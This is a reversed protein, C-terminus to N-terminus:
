SEGHRMVMKLIDSGFREIKSPGIGPIEQLAWLNDPRLSDISLIVRRHFVMYPKWNLARAQRRRYNELDRMLGPREAKRVGRTNSKAKRLPRGALWITPYKQGRHELRGEDLLSQMAAVLSSESVQKLQGHQALLHLRKKRVAQALSGRLAKALLVKGVPRPLEKVAEVIKDKQESSLTTPTARSSSRPRNIEFTHWAQKLAEPDQCFDCVGCAENSSEELFYRAFYDQRCAQARAYTEISDLLAVKPKKRSSKAILRNQTILDQIGFYLHCQAKNGDRGARGSEQYYAEPSAPIQYHVILRVDPHDIGMGFAHTAVLVTSTGDDYAKHATHRAKESMGAHYHSVKFRQEKLFAAVKEVQKRTACYVICRPSSSKGLGQDAITKKLQQNRTAEKGLPFVSYHLNPRIVDGMISVPERLSLYRVIEKRVRSTATATVAITPVDLLYKLEGLKLYEPRFDHGWQSICHAEDVALLSIKAQQVKRRFKENLAREPTLYVLDLKGATMEELSRTNNKDSQHSNLAAVRLGVSSLKQVQDQMLAILPSIVLACGRGENRYAVAPAQFCLSKGGGTPLVVLTDKGQMLAQAAEQQGALFEKHGFVQELIRHLDSM